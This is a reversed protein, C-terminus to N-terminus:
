SARTARTGALVAAAIAEDDAHVIRLQPPSRRAYHARYADVAVSWVGPGDHTHGAVRRIRDRAQRRSRCGPPWADLTDYRPPTEARRLEARMYPALAAALCRLIDDSHM